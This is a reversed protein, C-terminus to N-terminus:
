IEAFYLSFKRFLIWWGLCIESESSYTLIDVNVPNQFFSIGVKMSSKSPNLAETTPPTTSIALSSFSSTYATHSFEQLRHSQIRAIEDWNEWVSFHTTQLGVKLLCWRSWDAAMLMSALSDVLWFIVAWQFSQDNNASKLLLTYKLQPIHM